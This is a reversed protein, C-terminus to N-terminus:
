QDEINIKSLNTAQGIEKSFISDMWPYIKRWNQKRRIDLEDLYNRLEEMMEVNVQSLEIQKKFGELYTTSTKPGVSSILKELYNTMYHGFISPDLFPPDAITNWGQKIFKIKSWENIKQTLKWASPLTIPSLTSHIAVDIEPISLLLNFNNEWNKLNMGHRSYEAEEDWCDISCAIEFSKIKKNRLLDVIRLMKKELSNTNHKLNSYITWNLQPNNTKEFFDLCENFEDQFLPEGGLVRFDHLHTSNESMWEWLLKKMKPYEENNKWNGDLLYRNSIPGFKEIEDAIASSFLPNCYVCSQNCLNSFYVELIRPTVQLPTPNNDFEPPVCNMNNVFATRESLGGADEVKKCYHCANNPWKGQIMLERDNIKEPINHFNKFNAENLQWSGVRHCSSTTGQSL